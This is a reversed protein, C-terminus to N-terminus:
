ARVSSHPSPPRRYWAAASGSSVAALEQAISTDERHALGDAESNFPNSIDVIVKGALADGYHAVVPAVGDHCSPWTVIDPRSPAGSERRPAAASLRPWTLPRPSIAAGHGGCHQRGSGDARRHHQHQEYPTGDQSVISLNARGLGLARCATVLDTVAPRAAVEALTLPRTVEAAGPRAPRPLRPRRATARRSRSSSWRGAAAWPPWTAPFPSRSSSRGPSQPQSWPAAPCAPRPAAGPPCGPRVSLLAGPRPLAPVRASGPM